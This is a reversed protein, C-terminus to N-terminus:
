NAGQSLIYAGAVFTAYLLVIAFIWSIAMVFFIVALEKIAWIM